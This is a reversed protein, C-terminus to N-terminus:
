EDRDEGGARPVELNQWRKEGNAKEAKLEREESEQAAKKVAEEFDMLMATVKAMQEAIGAKAPADCKEFVAVAGSVTSTLSTGSTTNNGMARVHAQM